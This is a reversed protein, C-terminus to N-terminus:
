RNATFPLMHELTGRLGLERAGRDATRALPPASTSMSSM